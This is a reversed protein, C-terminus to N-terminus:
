EGIKIPKKDPAIAVYLCVMALVMLAYAHYSTMEDRTPSVAHAFLRYLFPSFEPNQFFMPQAMNVWAFFTVAAALLADGLSIGFGFCMVVAAWVLYREHMQPMLTFMLVWPVALAILFRPSRRRAHVAAAIACATLCVGFVVILLTRITMEPLWAPLAVPDYLKWGYQTSLIRPLNFGSITLRLGHRQPYLYAVDFWDFTGGIVAFLGAWGIM